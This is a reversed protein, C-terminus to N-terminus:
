RRPPGPPVPPEPRPEPPRGPAPGEDPGWAQQGRRAIRLGAGPRSLRAPGIAAAGYRRRIDDVARSAGEWSATAAELTLQEAGGEILGSASVGLLRVGPTLDLADLLKRAADALAPGSAVPQPSTVSRTLTTFDGYRLKLVVTRAVLGQARVRSAVADAQRVLVGELEDRDTLDRPFTEEHGISKVGRSPVVPRDDIGCALDHLHRGHSSGVAAVLSSVPVDALDGITTVGLRDLRARTAPGVGWLASVPQPHLFALEEGARVVVVGRGPEIGRPTAVPKAAESALKALLKTPAVGVSCSLGLETEIDLRLRAAVAPAPGFLRRSGTVDLFAEDLSIPEVLPTYRLFIDRIQESVEEYRAHDGPLFVAEPCRRRAVASPMASQVGYRRAEYSAAAVVGREGTGGVVVPRGRLEPRRLLEVSVFFADMDAHLIARASQSEAVVPEM